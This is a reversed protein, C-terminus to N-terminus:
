SPSSSPQKYFNDITRLTAIPAYWGHPGYNFQVGALGMDELGLIYDVADARGMSIYSIAGDEDLLGQQQGFDQLHAGDTFAFIWPVNDMLGFFPQVNPADGRAIFLWEPLAFAARWLKDQNEFTPTSRAEEVLADFDTETTPPEEESPQTDTHQDM